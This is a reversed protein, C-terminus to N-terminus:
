DVTPIRDIWAVASEKIGAREKQTLVGDQYAKVGKYLDDLAAKALRAHTDGAREEITAVLKRIVYEIILRLIM